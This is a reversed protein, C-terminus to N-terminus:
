VGLGKREPAYNQEGPTSRGLWFLHIQHRVEEPRSWVDHDWITLLRRGSAQLRAFRISDATRDLLASHYRDSLVEIVDTCDDLEYDVRGIWGLDDGVDVQRRLQVGVDLALREVRSELGSQPAVYDPPRVALMCRVATIGDRGRAGLQKLLDHMTRLKLIRMSLAHDLAREARGTAETGALLFILLAPSVVPIGALTALHEPPLGRHYHVQALRTRRNTGQWPIVVEIPPKLDFGPIRWWAAAAVHSLYATGPADLVGAMALHADTRPSGVLRLVQPSMPEIFGSEIQHRLARSGVGSQHLQKRNVVGHQLESLGVIVERADNM